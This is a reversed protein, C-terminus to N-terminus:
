LGAELIEFEDTKLNWRITKGRLPKILSARTVTVRGPGESKLTVDQTVGDYVMRDASVTDNGNAATIRVKGSADIAHIDISEVKSMATAALKGKKEMDAYLRACDLQIIDKSDQPSHTMQVNGLITLDSRTGDMTLSETWTFATLGNGSMRRGAIASGGERKIRYDELLMRGPGVIQAMEDANRFTLLPGTLFFRTDIAKRTADTWTTALLEVNGRAIVRQLRRSGLPADMQVNGTTADGIAAAAVKLQDKGLAAALAEEDILELTMDDAKIRNLERPSDESEVVVDGAVHLLNAKDDFNMSRTWTVKVRRGKYAAETNDPETYIMTGAGESRVVKGDETLRLMPVRLESTPEPKKAKEDPPPQHLIVVPSGTLVASGALADADLRDATIVSGERTLRVNQTATITRVELDLRDQLSPKGGSATAAAKLKPTAAAPDITKEALTVTLLKSSIQQQPDIVEVNGTAIMRSPILRGGTAAPATEIELQDAAIRAQDMEIRVAGTAHLQQLQRQTNDKGDATSESSGPAPTGPAPTGPAPAPAFAVALQQSRLKFQPDDIQVDGIFTATEIGADEQKPDSFTLDVSETWTVKFDPSLQQSSEPKPASASEEPGRLTGPGILRATNNDLNAVFRDATARMQPSSILLPYADNGTATVRGAQGAPQMFELMRCVMQEGGGSGGSAGGSQPEPKEPAAAVSIRVPSGEFQAYVDEAVRLMPPPFEVPTMVMKGSWTLVIEENPEAAPAGPMGPVIGALLAPTRPAPPAPAEPAEIVEPPQGVQGILLPMARMVHRMALTTIAEQQTVKKPAIADEGSHPAVAFYVLLKDAQITQDGRTVQIRSDFEVKYYHPPEPLEPPKDKGPKKAVAQSEAAAAEAIPRYRIAEGETIELYDIRRSLENYLLRLGKGKFSVQDTAPTHVEVRGTSKLEGLTTDFTAQDLKIRLVRDASDESLDAVTQKDSQFIDVVVNKRFEGSEPHNGPAVFRGEDSRMHIVRWPELYFRAQPEVLDFVGQEQPTMRQWMFERALAGTKPDTVQIITGENVGIAGVDPQGTPPETLAPPQQSPALAQTAGDGHAQEADASPKASLLAILVVGILGAVALLIVNRIRKSNM